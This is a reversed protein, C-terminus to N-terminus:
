SLLLLLLLFLSYFVFCHCDDQLRLLLPVLLILMFESCRAPLRLQRVLVGVTLAQCGRILVCTMLLFPVANSHGPVIAPGEPITSLIGAEGAMAGRRLGTAVRLQFPCPGAVFAVRLRLDMHSNRCIPPSKQPHRLFSVIIYKPYTNWQNQSFAVHPLSALHHYPGPPEWTKLRLGPAERTTTGSFTRSRTRCPLGKMQSHSCPDFFGYVYIFLYM